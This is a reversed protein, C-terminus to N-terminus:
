ELIKDLDEFSDLDLEVIMGFHQLLKIIGVVAAVIIAMKLLIKM